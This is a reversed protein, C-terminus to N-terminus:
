RVNAKCNPSLRLVKKYVALAAKYDKRNYMICAKGLLSPINNPAQGAHTTSIPSHHTLIPPFTSKGISSTHKITSSHHTIPRSLLLPLSLHFPLSLLSLFLYLSFSSLPLFPPSLLLLLLLPSPPPPLPPSSLSLLPHPPPLLHHLVSCLTTNPMPRIWNTVRWCVFTHGDWSTTRLPPPSPPSTTTIPPSPLILNASTPQTIPIFPKITSSSPLFTPISSFSSHLSSPNSQGPRVHHGQRGHYVAPHSTHLPGQSDGQGEDCTGAPTHM